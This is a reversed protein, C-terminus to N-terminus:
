RLSSRASTMSVSSPGTPVNHSKFFASPQRDRINSDGRFHLPAADRAGRHYADLLRLSTFQREAERHACSVRSRNTKVLRDAKLNHIRAFRVKNM